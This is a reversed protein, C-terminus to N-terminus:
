RKKTRKELVKLREKAQFELKDSEGQGLQLFTRYNLIANPYDNLKDYAIGLYFYTGAVHPKFEKFRLFAGIAEPYREQLMWASGLNSYAEAFDRKLQITRLFERISADFERKHLYLTGLKFHLEPDSSGETLEKTLRIADDTKGIEQYAGALNLALGRKRYPDTQLQLATELAQVASQFDKNELFLKGLLEQVDADKPESETLEQLLPLAKERQGWQVYLVALDLDVKETGSQFKRAELFNQEAKAYDKRKMYLAALASYAQFKEAPRLALDLASLFLPEAEEPKELVGQAKAAYFTAPFSRANLGRAREFHVLAQNWDKEGMLLIGLNLEAEWLDPKIKLAQLYSQVAELVRGVQSQALALGFHAAEDNPNQRIAIQYETIAEEFRGNGALEEAREYHSDSETASNRIPTTEQTVHDQVFEKPGLSFFIYWLCIPLNNMHNDVSDLSGTNKSSHRQVQVVDECSDRIVGSCIVIICCREATSNM